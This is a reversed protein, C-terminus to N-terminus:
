KATSRDRMQALYGTSPTTAFDTGIKLPNISWKEALLLPNDESGFIWGDYLPNSAKTLYEPTLASIDPLGLDMEDRTIAGFNLTVTGDAVSFAREMAGHRARQWVQANVVRYSAFYQADGFRNSLDCLTKRLAESDGDVNLGTVVLTWGNISPCVFVPVGKPPYARTEELGRRWTAAQVQTLGLQDIVATTDSTSIALWGTKYGFPEPNDPTALDDGFGRKVLFMFGSLWAISFLTRRGLLM